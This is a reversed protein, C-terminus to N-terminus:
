KRNAIIAAKGHKTTIRNAIVAYKGHKSTIM